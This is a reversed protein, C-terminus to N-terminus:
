RMAAQASRLCTTAPVLKLQIMPAWAIRPADAPDQAAQSVDSRCALKLGELDRRAIRRGKTHKPQGLNLEFISVLGGGRM